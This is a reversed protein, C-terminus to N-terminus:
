ERAAVPEKLFGYAYLLMATDQGDIICYYCTNGSSRQKFIFADITNVIDQAIPKVSQVIYLKSTPTRMMRELQDGHKGLQGGHTEKRSKVTGAGKFIISTQIREGNLIMYSTYVDETEGGWDTPIYSQGIIELFARKVEEEPMDLFGNQLFTKVQEYNISRVQSFSDITQIFLRASEPEFQYYTELQNLISELIKVRGSVTNIVNQAAENLGNFSLSVGTTWLFQGVEKQTPFTTNLYHVVKNSWEKELAPISPNEPTTFAHSIMAFGEALFIILQDKIDLLPTHIRM